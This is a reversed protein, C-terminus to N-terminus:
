NNTRHKEFFNLVKEEYEEKHLSYCKCHWADKAIWLEKPGNYANYNDMTMHMPVFDDKDGHIFLIPINVDKLAEFTKNQKIDYKMRHKVIHKVLFLTPWTPAHYKKKLLYKLQEHGSTFGSDGIIAKVESPLNHKCAFLCSACGMSIGHLLIDYQHNFRSNIYDVWLKINEGDKVGFGIFKGESPFHGEHVLVLLDFEKHNFYFEGYSYIDRLAESRWGHCLIALRKNNEGQKFYYAKLARNNKERIEFIEPNLKKIEDRFKFRNQEYKIKEEDKEKHYEEDVCDFCFYFVYYTISIVASGILGSLLFAVLLVVWNM